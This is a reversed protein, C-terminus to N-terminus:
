IEALFIEGIGKPVLTILDDYQPVSNERLIDFLGKEVQELTCEINIYHQTEDNFMVLQVPYELKSHTVYYVGKGIHKTLSKECLAAVKGAYYEFRHKVKVYQKMLKKSPRSYLVWKNYVDLFRKERKKLEEITLNTM